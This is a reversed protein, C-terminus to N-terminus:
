PTEIEAKMDQEITQSSSTLLAVQALLFPLTWYVPAAIYRPEWLPNFKQM